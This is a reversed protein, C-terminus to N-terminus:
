PRKAKRVCAFRQHNSCGAANSHIPTGSVLLERSLYTLRKVECLSSTEAFRRGEFGEINCCRHAVFSSHRFIDGLMHSWWVSQPRQHLKGGHCLLM